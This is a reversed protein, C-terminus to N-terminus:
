EDRGIVLAIWTDRIERKVDDDIQDWEQRLGRRGTLDAIIAKVIAKAQARDIESM